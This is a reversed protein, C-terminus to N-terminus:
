GKGALERVRRGLQVPQEEQVNHGSVVTDVAATPNRRAFEAADAETVFGHDGRLLTLPAQVAALDEWGSEGLVASVADRQAAAGAALAPNAIMAAALHAFHHKWEVRGDPRVRSNLFVGREAAARSGGLGFALARDVLEDRSAWDTPGAFFDRIQTPGADPDVGPTIDIM